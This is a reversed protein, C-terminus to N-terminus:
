DHIVVTIGQQELERLFAPSPGVRGQQGKKRFFHWVVAQVPDGQEILYADKVMQERLGKVTFTLYAQHLTGTATMADLKRTGHPTPLSKKSGSVLKRLYIAAQDHSAFAVPSTTDFFRQLASEAQKRTVLRQQLVKGYVQVSDLTRLWEVPDTIEAESRGVTQVPQQRWLQPFDFEGQYQGLVSSLLFGRQLSLGGVFRDPVAAEASSLAGGSESSTWRWYLGEERLWAAEGALLADARDVWAESSELVARSTVQQTDVQHYLYLPLLLLVLSLMLLIPFVLTAEITFSGAEGRLVRGIRDLRGQRM